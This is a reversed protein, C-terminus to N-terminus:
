PHVPAAGWFLLTALLVSKPVLVQSLVLCAMELLHPQISGLSQLGNHDVRGCALNHRCSLRGPANSICLETDIHLLSHFLGGNVIWRFLKNSWWFMPYVDGIRNDHKTWSIHHLIRLETITSLGLSYLHVLNWAKIFCHVYNQRITSSWEGEEGVARKRVLQEQLIYFQDM